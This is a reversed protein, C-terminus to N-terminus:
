IRATLKLYLSMMTRRMTHILPYLRQRMSLLIKNKFKIDKDSANERLMADGTGYLVPVAKVNWAYHEDFDKM